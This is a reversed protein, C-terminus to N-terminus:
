KFQYKTATQNQHIQVLQIKIDRTSCNQQLKNDASTNRTATIHMLCELCSQSRPASRHSWPKQWNIWPLVTTLCQSAKVARSALNKLVSIGLGLGFRYIHYRVFTASDWSKFLNVSIDRNFSILLM